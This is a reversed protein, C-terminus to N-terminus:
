KKPPKGLKGEKPPINIKQKPFILDKNKIKGKNAQFIRPWLKSDNYIEKNKAIRWLCDAPVRKEVTYQKWGKGLSIIGSGAGTEDGENESTSKTSDTTKTATESDGDTKVSTGRDKGKDALNTKPSKLNAVQDISIEALRIAEESQGISDEYKEQELLTSSARLSENAAGLNEQASGYADKSQSSKILSDSNLESFRSNADEVVDRAQSNRAKAHDKVVGALLASSAAKSTKIKEDASKLKGADIDELASAVRAKEEEVAPNTGNTYKSAKDLNSEIEEASQKLVDSKELAVVKADSGAQKADKFLNYSAEYESLALTRKTEKSSGDKEERLYSALSSDASALKADGEEKLANAKKFEESSYEAANAEDAADILTVAEERTKAVLKPLTKELADYAKSIAYDANKKSDSAKEEAAFDNAANLSRKAEAFEEPAYSEAQLNEARSVQEKALALEKLPLEQGCNIFGPLSFLVALLFVITKEKQVM